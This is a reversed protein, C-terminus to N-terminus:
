RGGMGFLVIRVTQFVIACDFAASMHVLYFLDYELKRLADEVSAGYTFQVQAWGTLGPRVSHREDYYPIQERLKEVFVPREPRPGVFSMEGRIVNLLQPLEDLRYKRLFAGLRTVRPDNAKAWQAGGVKEADVRMSRFKILEFVKGRLGVRTQRYFIPRGSDLYVALTALAIIPASVMAALLAVIVDFVRKSMHTVKSRRFGDSFVFWSPRVTELWVRGTLAAMASHADEVHVGQVRLKVLERIPLAGRCDQLAVIIRAPGHCHKTVLELTAGPGYVPYGLLRRNATAAKQEAIFGALVLNLDDRRSIERAVNMALNGAGLILVHQKFATIKWAKDLAIRILAASILALGLAIFLVGRGILLSPTLFYLFGLLMCAAGTSQTLRVWQEIRNAVADPSYLDNYYFCIQLTVVGILCQVAYDPLQTHDEFGAPDNWFRLKAALPFCLAILCCELSLLVLVKISVYQQFIRIM